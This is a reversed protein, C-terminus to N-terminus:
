QVDDDRRLLTATDSVVAVCRRLRVCGVSLRVAHRPSSARDRSGHAHLCVRCSVVGGWLAAKRVASSHPQTTHFTPRTTNANRGLIFTFMRSFVRQLHTKLIICRRGAAWSASWAGHM